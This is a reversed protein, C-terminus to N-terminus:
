AVTGNGQGAGNKSQVYAIIEAQTVKTGNVGVENLYGYLSDLANQIVLVRQIVPRLAQQVFMAVEAQTVKKAGFADPTANQTEVTM